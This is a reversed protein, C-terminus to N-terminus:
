GGVDYINSAWSFASRQMKVPATYNVIPSVWLHVLCAGKDVRGKERDVRFLIEPIIFEGVFIVLQDDKSNKSSSPCSVPPSIYQESTWILWYNNVLTDKITWLHLKKCPSSSVFM